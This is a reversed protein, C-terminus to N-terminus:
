PKPEAPHEDAGRRQGEAVGESHATAIIEQRAAEESAGQTIGEARTARVLDDKIGNVSKALAPLSETTKAVDKAVKHAQYAYFAAVASGIGTLIPGISAILTNLTSTLDIPGTLTIEAILTGIGVAIGLLASLIVEALHLHAHIVSPDSRGQAATLTAL